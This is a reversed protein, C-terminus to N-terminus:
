FRISVFTLVWRLFQKKAEQAKLRKDILDKTLLGAKKPDIVQMAANRESTFDQGALEATSLFEM